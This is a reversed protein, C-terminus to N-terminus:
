LCAGVRVWVRTLLGTLGCSLLLVAVLRWGLMVGYEGSEERRAPHAGLSLTLGVCGAGLGSIALLSFREMFALGAGVHHLHVAVLTWCFWLGFVAFHVGAVFWLPVPQIGGDSPLGLSQYASQRLRIRETTPMLSRM